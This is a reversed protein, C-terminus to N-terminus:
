IIKAKKLRDQLDNIRWDVITLGFEWSKVTDPDKIYWSNPVFEALHRDGAAAIVGYRKFL